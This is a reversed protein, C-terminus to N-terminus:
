TKKIYRLMYANFFLVLGLCLIGVFNKAKGFGTTEMDFFIWSYTLGAPLPEREHRISLPRPPSRMLWDPVKEGHLRSCLLRHNIPKMAYETNNEEGVFADTPVDKTQIDDNDRASRVNTTHELSPEPHQQEEKANRETNTTKRTTIGQKVTNRKDQIQSNGNNQGLRISPIDRGTADPHEEKVIGRSTAGSNQANSVQPSMEGGVNASEQKVKQVLDPIFAPARQKFRELLSSRANSPVQPNGNGQQTNTISDTCRADSTQHNREVALGKDEICSPTCKTDSKRKRRNQKNAKEFDTKPDSRGLTPLSDQRMNLMMILSNGRYRRREQQIILNELYSLQGPTPLGNIFDNENEGEMEVDNFRGGRSSGINERPNCNVKTDGVLPHNSQPNSTSQEKLVNSQQLGLAEEADSCGTVVHNADSTSLAAVRCM